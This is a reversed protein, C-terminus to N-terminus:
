QNCKCTYYNNYEGYKLEIDATTNPRCPIIAEISFSYETNYPITLQYRADRTYVVPVLPVVRVYYVAGVLQTWEVTVTVNAASYEESSIWLTLVYHDIIIGLYTIIILVTILEHMCKSNIIGIIHITTSASETMPNNADMCHVVTGNLGISTSNIALTSVLSTANRASIRM